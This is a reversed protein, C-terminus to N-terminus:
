VEDKKIKLYEEPTIYIIDKGMYKKYTIFKSDLYDKMAYRKNGYSLHKNNNLYIATNFKYSNWIDWDSTKGGSISYGQEDLKKMLNRYNEKTEIDTIIQM